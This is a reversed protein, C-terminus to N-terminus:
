QAVWGGDVVLSHGTVFSSADSALWLVSESIENPQGIRGIPEAAQLQQLAQANGKSFRDIMPTQIVGPCVANIRIRSKAYELASVKTLGIVGHKAAVYAPIGSFGVLGAISSCNIISGGGRKLMEPIQYKMCYWVSSLNTEIVSHWNEATCEATPSTQGEIGANNFAIDLGGYIQVTKAIAAQVQQEKSVDCKIFEAQGGAAKIMSATKLGLDENIDVLAVRASSRAFLLATAQGIGTSAGTVFVIKSSFDYQPNM